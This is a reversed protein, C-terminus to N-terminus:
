WKRRTCRRVCNSRLSKGFSEFVEQIGAGGPLSRAENKEETIPVRKHTSARGKAPRAGAAAPRSAGKCVASRTQQLAAAAQGFSGGCASCFMIAAFSGRRTRCCPGAASPHAQLFPQMQLLGVPLQLERQKSLGCAPPAAISTASRAAARALLRTNVLPLAARAAACRAAVAAALDAQLAPSALTLGRHPVSGFAASRCTSVALSVTRLKYNRTGSASGCRRVWFVCQSAGSACFFTVTPPSPSPARCPSSGLGVVTVNISSLVFQKEARRERFAGGLDACYM